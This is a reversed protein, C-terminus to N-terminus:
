APIVAIAEIEILFEERVLRRVEVATSAPPQETNIYRDRVARIAPIQTIDVAFITLKVVQAFTAGVAALAARLNEFVQEAQGAMDGVGVIEGARNLPVQGSIYVTRGQTAEVVHTYGSPTAMAPPNIFRANAPNTSM